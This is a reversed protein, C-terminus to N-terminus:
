LRMLVCLMFDIESRHSIGNLDGTLFSYNISSIESVYQKM